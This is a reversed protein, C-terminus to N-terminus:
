AAKEQRRPQRARRIAERVAAQQSGAVAIDRGEPSVVVWSFTTGRQDKRVTWRGGPTRQERPRARSGLHPDSM